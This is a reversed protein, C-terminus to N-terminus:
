SKKFTKRNGMRRPITSKKPLSVHKSPIPKKSPEKKCQILMDDRFKDFPVDISYDPLVIEEEVVVSREIPMGAKGWSRKTYEKGGDVSINGCSCHKFDHRHLSEIVDHCGPCEAMNRIIKERKITNM